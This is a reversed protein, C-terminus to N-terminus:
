CWVDLPQPLGLCSVGGRQGASTSSRGCRSVVARGAAAPPEGADPRLLGDAGPAPCGHGLGDGCGVAALASPPARDAPGCVRLVGAASALCFVLYLRDRQSWWFGAAMLAMLALVACVVLGGYQRLRYHDRYLAYVEDRAGVWPASLGGWRAAQASVRVQVSAAPYGEQSDRRSRATAGLDPGQGFRHAADGLQGAHHILREDLWVEIQNGARPLYLARPTSARTAPIDFRYSAM